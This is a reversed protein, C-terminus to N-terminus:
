KLITFINQPPRGIIAKNGEIAIPREILIPNKCMIKIWEADSKKKGKYKEIFLPEKTRIIDMPKLGLSKLIGKLEKETPPTKLYEIIEAEIGKEELLCLAERCKACKPNYYLKVKKM